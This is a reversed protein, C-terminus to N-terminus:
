CYCTANPIFQGCVINNSKTKGKISTRSVVIELTGYGSTLGQFNRVIPIAISLKTQLTELRSRVNTYVLTKNQAQLLLYETPKNKLVSSLHRQLRAIPYDRSLLILYM